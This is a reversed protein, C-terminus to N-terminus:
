LMYLSLFETTLWADNLISTVWSSCHATTCPLFPLSHWLSSTSATPFLAKGYLVTVLHAAANWLPHAILLSRSREPHGTLTCFSTNCATVSWHWPMQSFIFVAQTVPLFLCLFVSWWYSKLSLGEDVYFKMSTPAVYVWQLWFIYVIHLISHGGPMSDAPLSWM